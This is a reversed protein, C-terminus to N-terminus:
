QFYPLLKKNTYEESVNQTRNDKKEEKMNSYNSYYVEHSTRDSLM